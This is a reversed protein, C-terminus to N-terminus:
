VKIANIFLELFRIKVVCRNMTLRDSKLLNLTFHIGDYYLRDFTERLM